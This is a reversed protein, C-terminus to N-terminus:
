DNLNHYMGEVAQKLEKETQEFAYTYIAIKKNISGINKDFFQKLENKNM